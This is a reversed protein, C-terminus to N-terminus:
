SAAVSTYVVRLSAPAATSCTTCGCAHYHRHLGRYLVDHHQAPGLFGEVAVPEGGLAAGPEEQHGGVGGGRFPAVALLVPNAERRVVAIHGGTQAGELQPRLPVNVRGLRVLPAAQREGSLPDRKRRDLLAQDLGQGPPETGDDRATLKEADAPGVAVLGGVGGKRTWRVRRRM